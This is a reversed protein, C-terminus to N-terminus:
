ESIIAEVEITLEPSLDESGNAAIVRQISGITQAVILLNDIAM